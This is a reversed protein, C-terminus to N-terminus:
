AVKKFTQEATFNFCTYCLQSLSRYSECQRSSSIDKHLIKNDAIVIKSHLSDSLLLYSDSQLANKLLRHAELVVEGYLKTFRGVRYQTMQGYHAIVKLSVAITLGFRKELQNRKRNFATEMKKFQQVLQQLSPPTGYRYFLVADGEVESIALKLQNRTIIATLLEATIIKGTIADTSHVLQTFGSIDPIFLLGESIGPEPICASFKGPHKM